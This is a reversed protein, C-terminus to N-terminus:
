EYEEKEEGMIKEYEEKTIERYKTEDADKALYIEAGYIEGNTLIMGDSAKLIKREM